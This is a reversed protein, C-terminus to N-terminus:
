LNEKNASSNSINLEWDVVLISSTSISNSDLDFKCIAAYNDAYNTETISSTYLGLGNFETGELQDRPVIFSYRVVCANANYVKEPNNLMYIFGSQRVIKTVNKDEDVSITLLLIKNLLDFKATEFNGILCDALFNFLHSGGSNHVQAIPTKKTGIYQSLTVTGTYQLTNLAKNKM